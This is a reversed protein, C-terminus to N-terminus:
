AGEEDEMLVLATLLVVGCVASVRTAFAHHRLRPRLVNMYASPVGLASLEALAATHTQRLVRLEGDAELMRPPDITDAMLLTRSTGLISAFLGRLDDALASVSATRVNGAMELVHRRHNELEPTTFPKLMRVEVPTLAVSRAGVVIFTGGAGTFETTASNELKVTARGTGAGSGAFTAITEGEAAAIGQAVGEADTPEAALPWSYSTPM